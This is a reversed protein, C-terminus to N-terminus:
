TILELARLQVEFDGLVDIEVTANIRELQDVIAEIRQKFSKEESKLYDLDIQALTVLRHINPDEVQGRHWSSVEVQAKEGKRRYAELRTRLEDESVRPTKGMTKRMGTILGLKAEISRLETVLQNIGNSANAQGVMDRLYARLDQLQLVLALSKRWEEGADDLQKTIVEPTDHVFVEKHSSSGVDKTADFIASDIKGVLKTAKRLTLQLM